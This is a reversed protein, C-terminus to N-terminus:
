IIKKNDINSLLVQKLQNEINIIEKEAQLRSNRSEQQVKITEKITSILEENVKKLTQIDIIGRENERTTMVSNQHLLEANKSLLNNTM